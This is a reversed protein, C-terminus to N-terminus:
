CMEKDRDGPNAIPVQTDANEIVEVIQGKCGPCPCACFPCPCAANCSALCIDNINPMDNVNSLGMVHAFNRLRKGRLLPPLEPVPVDGINKRVFKNIGSDYDYSLCYRLRRWKRHSMFKRTKEQLEELDEELSESRFQLSINRAHVQMLEVKVEELLSEKEELSNKLTNVDYVWRQKVETLEEEIGECYKSDCTGARM